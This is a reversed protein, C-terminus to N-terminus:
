RFDKFPDDDNKNADSKSPFVPPPISGPQKTQSSAQSNSFMEPNPVFSGKKLGISENGLTNTKRPDNAASSISEKIHFIFEVPQQALYGLRVKQGESITVPSLFPMAEDDIFTESRSSSLATIQWGGQLCQIKCHLGSVSTLSEPGYFIMDSKAPDRGLNVSESYIPLEKGILNTPGDIIELSAIPNKRSNRNGVITKRIAEGVSKGGKVLSATIKKRWILFAIIMLGFLAYLGYLLYTTMLSVPVRNVIQVTTEGSFTREAIGESLEDNLQLNIKAQFSGRQDFGSLDWAVRYQTDNIKELQVDIPTGNNVIMKASTLKRPYGKWDINLDINETNKDFIYGGETNKNAIRLISTDQPAVTVTPTDLQITYSNNGVINM